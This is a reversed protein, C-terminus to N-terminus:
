PLAGVKRAIILDGKEFTVSSLGIEGVKLQRWIEGEHLEVEAGDILASVYAIRKGPTPHWVTRLVQVGLPDGAAAVPPPSAFPKPHTVRRQASERSALYPSYPEGPKASPAPKKVEPLALREAPKSPDFTPPPVYTPPPPVGAITSNRRKLHRRIAANVKQAGPAQADAVTGGASASPPAPSPPAAQPPPGPSAAPQAAAQFGNDEGEARAEPPTVDRTAPRRPAASPTAADVTAAPAAPSSSQWGRLGLGLGVLLLVGLGIGLVLRPRPLRSSGSRAAGTVEDHLRKTEAKQQREGEVRRLAKMITSM